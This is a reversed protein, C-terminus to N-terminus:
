PATIPGLSQALIRTGGAITTGLAARVPTKPGSLISRVMVNGLEKVTISNFKKGDFEGGRLKASMFNDFDKLSRISNSMSMAEVGEFLESNPDDGFM